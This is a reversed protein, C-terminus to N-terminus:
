ATFCELVRRELRKEGVRWHHEEIRGRVYQMSDKEKERKSVPM